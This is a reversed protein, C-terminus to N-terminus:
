LVTIEARDRLGQRQEAQLTQGYEGRLQQRLQQQEAAPMQELSGPAVRVLELVRAEGSDALLVDVVSGDGQPAPLSFLRQSLARPLAPSNRRAGLEVQWDVGLRRAVSEVSEGGRIAEAAAEAEALRAERAREEAIARAIEERVEDLPRQAPERHEAVHVVVFQEPGAEIVESNHGEELVEESFAAELVARAYLPGEGRAGRTLPESRQLELGLKEAPQALGDAMFALDRLEEVTSLLAAQAERQQLRQELMPRLEEFDPAEGSRRETVKIFHVGADTEVPGSVAGEELEAIAAEMPEPFADGATFGLDGGSSASGIDDSYAEAVEAFDRGADLASQVEDVRSQFDAESQDSGPELLVHSVRSEDQYQYSGIELQYAEQLAAEDVPQFFDEATLVLYNLVVSEPRTYAEPNDRYHAEIAEDSVAAVDAELPPLTLYRVDRQEALFRANLALESATAFESGLLGAQLQGLLIDEGLASRFSAPTYGASALLSRYREPSFEGDIQFQEMGAVVAGLQESSTALGLDAAHQLMVRRGILSDLAQPRLRQEELMAPDLNDGLMSILQRRQLDVAQQLEQAAIPEGNIEAISNDSGGVLISEIGFLAFSLVILGIVVKAATGQTSKRIDQLM